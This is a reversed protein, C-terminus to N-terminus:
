GAICCRLCGRLRRSGRLRWRWRWSSLNQKVRSPGNHDTGRTKAARVKMTRPNKTRLPPDESGGSRGGEGLSRRPLGRPLPPIPLRVLKLPQRYCYRPPELGGKRVMVYKESRKERAIHRPSSDATRQFHKQLGARNTEDRARTESLAYSGGADSKQASGCGDPFEEGVRFM